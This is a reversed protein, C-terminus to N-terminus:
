QAPYNRVPGRFGHRNLRSRFDNRDVGTVAIFNPIGFMLQHWIAQQLVQLLLFHTVQEAIQHLFSGDVCWRIGLTPAKSGIMIKVFRGSQDHSDNALSKSDRQGSTM